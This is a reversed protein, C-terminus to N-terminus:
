YVSKIQNWIPVSLTLQYVESAAKSPTMGFDLKWGGARLGVGYSPYEPTNSGGLYGLRLAIFQRPLVEFGGYYNVKSTEFNFECELSMLIFPEKSVGSPFRWASGAALKRTIKESNLFTQSGDYIYKMGSGIGTVALGYSVDPTPYYFVGFSSSLGWLKSPASEAYRVHLSGGFSLIPSVRRSYAVDYGYQIVKFPTNSPEDVYGVHNVSLAIGVVEGRRLFLPIAMNEDMVGVSGIYGHNLILNSNELFSMAAPNAYMVTVDPNDGALAGAFSLARAGVQLPESFYVTSSQAASRSLPVCVLALVLGIMVVNKM